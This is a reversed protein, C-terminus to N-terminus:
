TKRRHMSELRALLAEMVEAQSREAFSETADRHQAFVEAAHARVDAPVVDGLAELVREGEAAAVSRRFSWRAEFVRGSGASGTLADFREVAVLAGGCGPGVAVLSWERALPDDGAIAVHHVGDPVPTRGVFGVVVSARTALEAYRDAEVAFRDASQFLAVLVLDDRRSTTAAVYAEEFAHSLDVLTRYQLPWWAADSSQAWSM